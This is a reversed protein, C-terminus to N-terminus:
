NFSLSASGTQTLSQADFDVVFHDSPKGSGVGRLISFVQKFQHQFPVSVLNADSLKGNVMLPATTQAPFADMLLRYQEVREKGMDNLSLGGAYVTRHFDGYFTYASVQAMADFSVGQQAALTKAKAEAQAWDAAFQAASVTGATGSNFLCSATPKLPASDGLEALQAYTVYTSLQSMTLMQALNLQMAADKMECPWYEDMFRMRSLEGFYRSTFDGYNLSSLIGKDWRRKIDDSNTSNQVYGYEMQYLPFLEDFRPVNNLAVTQIDVKRPGDFNVIKYAAGYVALSPSQVNVLYNGQSDAYDNTGNFHMHGGIHLPLGTAAVAAATAQEPVRATQFAGSKFVGKIADTQNAYFDMTPYHSFAVLKKNQAKARASVDAIWAMVTRKHTVMKNWGANGAGSFSGSQSPNSPDFKDTPVFVNADVSLVWLGPSPEVLYSVDAITACQTYGAQKFRGGEGEKCIEYSRQDLGAQAKATELDYKGDKYHSFPTEWHIDKANPMLGYDGLDKLLSAYGLEMMENTCVVDAEANLCGSYKNAFVKQTTGGLGMFDSKGAEENDYPSVPDHNGPAIFFRMGKKEYEALVSQFGGVNMPQGDDSFDGPFAVFKVGKALADDLAARFAFYNENFLRTSTLQAYMTRITAFKGDATPVGKFSSNKLDGYVDHFHVDAMFAISSIPDPEQPNPETSNDRDSGGCATLLVATAGALCSLKWYRGINGLNNAYVDMVGIFGFAAIKIFKQTLTM